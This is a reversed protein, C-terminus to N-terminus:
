NNRLTRRHVWRCKWKPYRRGCLIQYSQFSTQECFQENQKNAEEAKKHAETKTLDIETHESLCFECKFLQTDPDFKLGAGCCPCQYTLTMKYGRPVFYNTLLTPALQKSAVSWQGSAALLQRSIRRSRLTIYRVIYAHYSWAECPRSISLSHKLTINRRLRLSIRRRHASVM